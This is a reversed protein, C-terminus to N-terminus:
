LLSKGRGEKLLLGKPTHVPLVHMQDVRLGVTQEIATQSQSQVSQHSFVLLAILSCYMRLKEPAIPFILFVISIPDRGLHIIYDSLRIGSAILYFYSNSTLLSYESPGGMM